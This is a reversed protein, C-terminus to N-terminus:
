RISCMKKLNQDLIENLIKQEEKNKGTALFFKCKKINTIKEM